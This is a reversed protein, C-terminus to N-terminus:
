VKGEFKQYWIWNGISTVILAISGGSIALMPNYGSRSLTSMWTATLESPRVLNLAYPVLYILSAGVILWGVASSLLFVTKAASQGSYPSSM